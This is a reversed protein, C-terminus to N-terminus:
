GSSGGLMRWATGDSFEALTFQNDALVGAWNAREPAPLCEVDRIDGSMPACASPGTCAVRVGNLVATVAAASSWTVLAHAGALDDALTAALKLKDPNWERVRLPRSTFSRLASVAMDTWRGGHFGAIDHMFSDSQPCLVIHGDATLPRWPKMAIGLAAFRKGNSTGEGTHQLRNRTVRYHTGRTSDFYSNDCYLFPLGRERVMNWLHLNQANIGYFFAVADPEPASAGGGVVKGGGCGDIFAGCIDLSKRKGPQPYAVVKM